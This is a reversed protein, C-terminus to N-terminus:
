RPQQKPRILALLAKMSPLETPQPRRVALLFKQELLSRRLTM